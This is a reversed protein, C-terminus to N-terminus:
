SKMSGTDCYIITIIRNKFTFINNRLQDKRPTFIYLKLVTFM